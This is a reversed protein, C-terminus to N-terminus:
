RRFPGSLVGWIGSAKCGQVWLGQLEGMFGISLAIVGDVGWVYM